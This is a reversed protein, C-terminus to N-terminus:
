SPWVRVPVPLAPATLEDVPAPLKEAVDTSTDRKEPCIKCTPSGYVCGDGEDARMTSAPIHDLLPALAASMEDKLQVTVNLGHKYPILKPVDPSTARAEDLVEVVTQPLEVSKVADPDFFPLHDVIPLGYEANLKFKALARAEAYETMPEAYSVVDDAADTIRKPYASASCASCLDPEVWYCAVGTREICGSCDLDTCGCVRCRGAGTCACVEGRDTLATHCNICYWSVFDPGGIDGKRYSPWGRLLAIAYRQGHTLDDRTLENTALSLAAAEAPDIDDDDDMAPGDPIDTANFGMGLGHVAIAGDIRRVLDTRDIDRWPIVAILVPEHRRHIEVGWAAVEIRVLHSRQSTATKLRTHLDPYATPVITDNLGVADLAEAVRPWISDHHSMPRRERESRMVYERFEHLLRAFEVLTPITPITM